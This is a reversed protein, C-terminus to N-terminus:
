QCGSHLLLPDRSQNTRPERQHMNRVTLVKVLCNPSRSKMSSGVLPTWCRCCRLYMFYRQMRAVSPLLLVVAMLEEAGSDTTQLLTYRQEATAMDAGMGARCTDKPVLLCWVTSVSAHLMNHM